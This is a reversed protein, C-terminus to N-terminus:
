ATLALSEKAADFRGLLLNLKRCSARVVEGLLFTFELCLHQSVDVVKSEGAVALGARDRVVRGACEHGLYGAVERLFGSLGPFSVLNRDVCKLPNTGLQSGIAGM